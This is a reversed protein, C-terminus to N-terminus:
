GFRLRSSLISNKAEHKKGLRYLLVARCYHAGAHDPRDKITAEVAELAEENRDLAELAICKYLNAVYLREYDPRLDLVSQSIGLAKEFNGQDLYMDSRKLRRGAKIVKPRRDQYEFRIGYQHDVYVANKESALMARDIPEYSDPGESQKEKAEETSHLEIELNDIFDAFKEIKLHAVGEVDLAREIEKPLSGAHVFLVTKHFSKNRVYSIKRLIDKDYQNRDQCEILYHSKEHLLEVVLYFDPVIVEDTQLVIRPQHQVKVRNPHKGALKELIELVRGEFDDGREQPSVGSEHSDSM